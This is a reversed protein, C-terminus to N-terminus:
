HASTLSQMIETADKREWCTTMRVFLHAHIGFGDCRRLHKASQVHGCIVPSVSYERCEPPFSQLCLFTLFTLNCSIVFMCVGKCWKQIQSVKISRQKQLSLFTIHGKGFSKKKMRRWLLSCRSQRPHVLPHWRSQSSLSLKPHCYFVLGPWHLGCVWPELSYLPKQVVYCQCHMEPWLTEYRYPTWSSKQGWNSGM